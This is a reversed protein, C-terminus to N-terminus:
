TQNEQPLTLPGPLFGRWTHLALKPQQDTAFSRRDALGADSM